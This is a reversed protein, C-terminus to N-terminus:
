PNKQNTPLCRRLPVVTQQFLTLIQSNFHRVQENPDGLQFIPLWNASATERDLKELVINKFDRYSKATHVPIESPDNCVRYSGYILDHEARMGPLSLQSYIILSDPENTICLDILTPIAAQFHTAENSVGGLRSLFETTEQTDELMNINFDGLLLNHPYKCILDPL